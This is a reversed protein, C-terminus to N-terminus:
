FAQRENEAVLDGAFITNLEFYAFSGQFVM